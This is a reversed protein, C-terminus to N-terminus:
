ARARRGDRALVLRARDAGVARSLARIVAGSARSGSSTFFSSAVDPPQVVGDHGRDIFLVFGTNCWVWGRKIFFLRRSV